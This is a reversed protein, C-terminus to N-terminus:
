IGKDCKPRGNQEGPLRGPKCGSTNTCFGFERDCSESLCGDCSKNCNFGFSGLNCETIFFFM